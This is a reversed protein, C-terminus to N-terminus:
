QIPMKQSTWVGAGETDCDSDIVSGLTALSGAVTLLKTQTKMCNLWKHSYIGNGM